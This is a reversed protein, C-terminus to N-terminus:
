TITVKEPMNCHRALFRGGLVLDSSVKECVRASIQVRATTLPLTCDTAVATSLVVM